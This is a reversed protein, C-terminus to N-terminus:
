ECLGGSRGKLGTNRFPEKSFSGSVMTNSGWFTPDINAGSDQFGLLGLPSRVWRKYHSWGRPFIQRSARVFRTHSLDSDESGLEHNVAPHQTAVPGIGM